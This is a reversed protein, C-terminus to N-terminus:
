FNTATNELGGISDVSAIIDCHFNGVCDRFRVDMTLKVGTELALVQDLDKCDVPVALTSQGYIREAEGRSINNLTDIM